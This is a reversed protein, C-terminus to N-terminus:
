VCINTTIGRRDTNRVTFAPRGTGMVPAALHDTRFPPGMPRQVRPRPQWLVDAASPMPVRQQCSHWEEFLSLSPSSLSLPLACSPSASFLSHAAKQKKRKIQSLLLLQLASESSINPFMCAARQGTTLTIIKSVITNVKPTSIHRKHTIIGLYYAKKWVNHCIDHALLSLCNGCTFVIFNFTKTARQSM